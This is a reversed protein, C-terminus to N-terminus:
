ICEQHTVLKLIVLLLLFFHPTLLQIKEELQFKLLQFEWIPDVQTLAEPIALM